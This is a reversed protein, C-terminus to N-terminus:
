RSMRAAERMYSYIDAPYAVASVGRAVRKSWEPRLEFRGLVFDFPAVIDIGVELARQDLNESM